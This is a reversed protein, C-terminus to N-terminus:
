QFTVQFNSSHLAEFQSSFNKMQRRRPNASRHVWIALITVQSPMEEDSQKRALGVPRWFAEQLQFHVFSVKSFM